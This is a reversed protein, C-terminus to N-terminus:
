EKMEIERPSGHKLNGHSFIMNKGHRRLAPVGEAYDAPNSYYFSKNKMQDFYKSVITLLDYRVLSEILARLM